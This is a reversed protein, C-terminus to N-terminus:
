PRAARAPMARVGMARWSSSALTVRSATRAAASVTNRGSRSLTTATPSSLSASSFFSSRATRANQAVTPKRHAAAQTRHAITPAGHAAAEEAHAITPNGHAAAEGAHAITLEGHATAERAHAINLEGHATM